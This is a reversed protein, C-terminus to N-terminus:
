LHQLLHWYFYSVLSIPQTSRSKLSFTIELLAFRTTYISVDPSVLFRCCQDLIFFSTAVLRFLFDLQLRKWYCLNKIAIALIFLSTTILFFDNHLYSNEAAFFPLHTNFNIALSHAFHALQAPQLKRYCPNSDVHSCYLRAPFSFRTPNASLSPNAIVSFFTWRCQVSIIRLSSM